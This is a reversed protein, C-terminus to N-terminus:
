ESNWPRTGSPPRSKKLCEIYSPLPSSLSAACVDDRQIDRGRERQHRPQFLMFPSIRVGVLDRSNLKGCAFNYTNDNNFKYM